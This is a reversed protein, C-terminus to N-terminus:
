SSAATKPTKKEAEAAVFETTGVALIDRAKM